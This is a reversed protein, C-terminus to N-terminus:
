DSLHVAPEYDTPNVWKTQKWPEKVEGSIVREWFNWANKQYFPYSDFIDGKGTMRPDNQVSLQEFLKEKMQEKKMRYLANDALNIICDKDVSLDYLEELGRKGLSLHYYWNNQGERKMNLIATKTPSGDCDLYGTEPDGAPLLNPKLNTIYLLSDQIIGRIPYGQNNPRGYDDRERGLLTYGRNATVTEDKSSKFIEFLSKGAPIIMGQKEPNTDGAELFTPTLDVFNVYDTVTRGPYAIGNKWM